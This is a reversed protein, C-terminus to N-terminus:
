SPWGATLSALHRKLILELYHIPYLLTPWRPDNRARPIREALLWGSIEDIQETTCVEHAVEVRVLSHRADMGSADWLRMYWMTRGESVTGAEDSTDTNSVYRFATTRHGQPLNFLTEAEDGVLHQTQLDKVLGVANPVNESLRGDVAIWADSALPSIDRRWHTLLHDEQEARLRNALDRSNYVLKGYHGALFEYHEFRRGHRDYLPDHLDGFHNLIEALRKLDPRGTELPFIWSQKSGFTEGALWPAGADDRELIGVAILGVVIPVLGIRWVPLTQQSGDLFYRFRSAGPMAQAVARAAIRGEIREITLPWVSPLRSPDEIVGGGGIGLELSGSRSMDNAGIRERDLMGQIRGVNTKLTPTMATSSFDQPQPVAHM